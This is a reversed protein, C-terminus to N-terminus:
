VMYLYCESGGSVVNPWHNLISVDHGGPEGGTGVNSEANGRKGRVWRHGSWEGTDVVWGVKLTFIWDSNLFVYEGFGELMDLYFVSVNLCETPM